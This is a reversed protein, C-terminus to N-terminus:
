LGYTGMDLIYSISCLWENFSFLLGQGLYLHLFFSVLKCLLCIGENVDVMYLNSDNDYLVQWGM